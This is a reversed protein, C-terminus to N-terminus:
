LELELLHMMRKLIGYAGCEWTHLYVCLRMCVYMFVFREKFFIKSHEVKRCLTLHYRLLAGSLKGKAPSVDVDSGKNKPSQNLPIVTIHACSIGYRSMCTSGSHSTEVLLKFADLIKQFVPRQAHGINM